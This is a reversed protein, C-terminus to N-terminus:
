RRESRVKMLVYIAIVLAVLGLFGSVAPERVDGLFAQLLIAAGVLACVVLFAYAKLRQFPTVVFKTTKRERRWRGMESVFTVTGLTVLIVGVGSRHLVLEVVGLVISIISASVIFRRLSPTVGDYDYRPRM